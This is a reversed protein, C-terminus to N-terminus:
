ADLQNQILLNLERRFKRFTTQNIVEWKAASSEKEQKIILKFSIESLTEEEEIEKVNIEAAIEEDTATNESQEEIINEKNLGHKLTEDDSILVEEENESDDSSIDCYDRILEEPSNSQDLFRSKDKSTISLNKKFTPKSSKLSTTKASKPPDSKSTSSNKKLRVMINHCIVCLSFKFSSSFIINYSYFNNAEKLKRLQLTNYITHKTEPNYVRSYVTRKKKGTNKLTPKKSQDCECRVFALKNDCFFCQQCLFCTGIAYPRKYSINHESM